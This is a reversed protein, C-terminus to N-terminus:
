SHPKHQKYTWFELQCQKKHSLFCPGHKNQHVSLKALIEYISYLARSADSELETTYEFPSRYHAGAIAFRFVNPHVRALLDPATIFNGLSKSMKKGGKATLFGVHMWIKVFPKKGSISEQQAIEAEHHPFMLDRGAGHIDYQQGFYKESIATDEIHWGPRGWGWPSWWAPEAGIIRAPVKTNGYGKPPPTSKAHSFKWLCFDGRNRKAGSADIRSVGDEAQEVTRKALKGYDPFTKLNFYWGDDPIEYAHGRAILRKVQNIIEPIYKTAPAYADVSTLHLKKLIHKYSAAYASAVAKWNRGEKNARAIIKDDVDTINQLYFVKIGLYRLYKVLTDFVAYARANGIHIHDYVTPGCVFLRLPKGPQPKPLPEKKGSLTNYITM